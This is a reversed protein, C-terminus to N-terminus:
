PTYQKFLSEVYMNEVSNVDLRHTILYGNIIAPPIEGVPHNFIEKYFGKINEKFDKLKQKRMVFVEENLDGYFSLKKSPHIWVRKVCASSGYIEKFWGIHNNMQGCETKNIEDRDEKVETKCEFFIYKNKEMAWLNDPGKKYEKDPRQSVFGLMKGISMMADEFKEAKNGFSAESLIRNVDNRLEENSDHQNIWEQIKSIRNIDLLGIKEYDIGEMPKLLYRNQKYASKQITNSETKSFGYKMRAVNQMYWAKENPSGNFSDAIKQAIDSAQKYDNISYAQEANKELEFIKLLMEESHTERIGDMETKYYEKWGEDRQLIQQLLDTFGKYYDINGSEKQISEALNLGIEIQKKTQNSLLEVNRRNRIFQVLDSGVLIIVSYDKEGRVSRGMGQEIKQAIKKNIINSDVRVAEEYQAELTSSYPLSDILLIRCANDPLDIGDYRNVLVTPHGFIGNRLDEICKNITEKKAVVSGLSEYQATRRKSPVIAVIGFKSPKSSAIKTVILDHDLSEDILSPIIVLKEGSWRKSDDVLPNKIADVDFDLDKILFADDQTNASMLIRNRANTWFRYKIMPLIYPAIELKNGSIFAYCKTLIDRLLPWQFKIKEEAKLSSIAEIVYDKKEIWAWYPIPLISEYEGSQIDLFTGEGQEKLDEEFISMIKKYLPHENDVKITFSSKITDICTHSDDLVIAEVDLSHGEIGFKSLGNFVKYAQTILIKKGNVFDDPLSESEFTCYPIGFREAERRTQELLNNNPCVYMCPRNTMNLKSNLILLGVLTKGEGTHLKVITDKKEKRDSFWKKLVSVQAQRLDGVDSRRDLTNYIDIPDIKKEIGSGILMKKFDVM